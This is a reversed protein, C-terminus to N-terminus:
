IEILRSRMIHRLIQTNYFGMERNDPSLIM